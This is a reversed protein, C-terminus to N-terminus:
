KRRGGIRVRGDEVRVNYRILRESSGTYLPRGSELDFEWAHHPCRITSYELGAEYVGPPSPVFTGAVSGLCIPAGRHPCTNKLAFFRDDPRRLLWIDKGAIPAPTLQGVPYEDVAGADLEDAVDPM